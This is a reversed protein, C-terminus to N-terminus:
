RARRRRYSTRAATAGLSRSEQLRAEILRAEAILAAGLRDQHEKTMRSEIAAVTLAAVPTGPPDHIAVGIGWAGPFILGPNLAYGKARADSVLSRLVEETALPYREAYVPANTRLVLDVEEDPLDALIALGGAGIGLPHRDGAALVHARVPYTGEQRHLCVAHFGNRVSIFVNDQSLDVLRQLSDTALRHIGYREAAITGLVYTEPGLFYRRSTADQEILGARILALLIRRATPLKLAAQEAVEGLSAGAGHSRAVLTLLALCREVSQVGLYDRRSGFPMKARAISNWMM